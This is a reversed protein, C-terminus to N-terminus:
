DDHAWSITKVAVLKFTFTLFGGIMTELQENTVESNTPTSTVLIGAPIANTEPEMQTEKLRNDTVSRKAL